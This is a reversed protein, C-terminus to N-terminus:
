DGMYRIIRVKEHLDSAKYQKKEIYFKTEYGTTVAKGWIPYYHEVDNPGDYTHCTATEIPLKELIEAECYLMQKKCIKKINVHCAYMNIGFLFLIFVGYISLIYKITDNEFIGQGIWAPALLIVFIIFLLRRKKRFSAAREEKELWLVGGCKCM